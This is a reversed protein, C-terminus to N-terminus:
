VVRKLILNILKFILNPIWEIILFCPLLIMLITSIFIAAPSVGLLFFGFGQVFQDRDKNKVGQIMAILSFSCTIIGGIVWMVITSDEM